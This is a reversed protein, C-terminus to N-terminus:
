KQSTVTSRWKANQHSLSRWKYFIYTDIVSRAQKDQCCGDLYRSSFSLVISFTDINRRCDSRLSLASLWIIQPCPCMKATVIFIFGRSWFSKKKWSLQHPCYFCVPTSFFCTADNLWADVRVSTLLADLPVRWFWVCGILFSNYWIFTMTIAATGSHSTSTGSHCKRRASM